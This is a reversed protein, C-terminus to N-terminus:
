VAVHPLVPGSPVREISPFGIAVAMDLSDALDDLAYDLPSGDTLAAHLALLAGRHPSEYLVPQAHAGASDFRVIESPRTLPRRKPNAAPTPISASACSHSATKPRTM